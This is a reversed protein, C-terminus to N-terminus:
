FELADGVKLFYTEAFGASVELVYLSEQLPYFVKPFTEPAVRPEIHSIKKNETIWIIDIPFRMEKMWFGYRDLQQFVFLMGYDPLLNDRGSLGRARAEDTDAIEVFVKTNGVQISSVEPVQAPNREYMSHKKQPGYEVLLLLGLFLAPGTLILFYKRMFFTYCARLM